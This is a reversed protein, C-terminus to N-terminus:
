IYKNSHSMFLLLHVIYNQPLCKFWSLFFSFLCLQTVSGSLSLSHSLCFCPTQGILLSLPPSCSPFSTLLELVSLSRDRVYLNYNATGQKSCLEQLRRRQVSDGTHEVLARLFAQELCLFRFSPWESSIQLETPHDHNQEGKRVRCYPVSWNWKACLGIM